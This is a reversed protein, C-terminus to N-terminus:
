SEEKRGKGHKPHTQARQAPKAQLGEVTGVGGTPFQRKTRGVREATVLILNVATVLVIKHTNAAPPLDPLTAEKNMQVLAKAGAGPRLSTM